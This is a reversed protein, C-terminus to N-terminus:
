RELHRDPAATDPASEVAPAAARALRWAFGGVTVVGLLLMSWLAIREWPLRRMPTLRGAGGLTLTKGTPAVPLDAFSTGDDLLSEFRSLPWESPEADGRGFALTYPGSGQKLFVVEHPLWQIVLAPPPEDAAFRQDTELLWLPAATAPVSMAASSRSTTGSRGSSDVRFFLHEGVYRGEANGDPRGLYVKAAVAQNAQPLALAIRDVPFLGGTHYAILAGQDRSLVSGPLTRSARRQAEAQRARATVQRIELPATTDSLTLRLYRDNVAPLDIENQVVHRGKNSLAAVTARAGVPHWSTLDDSAEVRADATFDAGTDAWQLELRDIRGSRDSADILFRTSRTGGSAGEIAVVTGDGALQVNIRSGASGDPADPLAFVPLAQRDSWREATATPRRIAFPVPNGTGDFVAVDHLDATTVTRYVVDPVVVRVVAGSEDARVVLGKAYDDPAAIAPPGFAALVALLVFSAKM